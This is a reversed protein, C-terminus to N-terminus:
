SLSKTMISFSRVRVRTTQKHRQTNYVQFFTSFFEYEIM